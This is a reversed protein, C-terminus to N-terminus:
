IRRNMACKPTVTYWNGVKALTYLEGTSHDAPSIIMPMVRGNKNSPVKLLMYSGTKQKIGYNAIAYMNATNFQAYAAQATLAKEAENGADVEKGETTTEQLPQTEKALAAMDWTGVILGVSLLISIIRKKM